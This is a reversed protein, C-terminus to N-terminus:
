PGVKRSTSFEQQWVARGPNWRGCSGCHSGSRQTPLSSVSSTQGSRSESNQRPRVNATAVHVMPDSFAPTRKKDVGAVNAEMPPYRFVAAIDNGDGTRFAATEGGSLFEISGQVLTRPFVAHHVQVRCHSRLHERALAAFSETLESSLRTGHLIVEPLLTGRNSRWQTTSAFAPKVNRVLKRM